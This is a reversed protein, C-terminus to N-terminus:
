KDGESDTQKEAKAVAEKASRAKVAVGQGGNADPLLYTRYTGSNSSTAQEDSDQKKPEAM